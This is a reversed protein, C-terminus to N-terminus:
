ALINITLRVIANPFTVAIMLVISMLFKPPVADQLRTIFSIAMKISLKSVYPKMEPIIVPTVKM